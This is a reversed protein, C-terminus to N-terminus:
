GRTEIASYSQYIPLMVAVIVFGVILAMLIIMVPELLAVLRKTAMEAEYDLGDSIVDLMEDLSGTEEGVSVSATLKGEFGDVTDLARSLPEGSRVMALVEDFQSAIYANGVTSRGTRLAQVIPMGSSYLSSLTRAFRATYIKRQLKGVIPMHLKVRDVVLRVPPLRLVMGLLVCFFVFGVLLLFWHDQVFHSMGLLIVTPLPLTEMQAFLDEFQPIIFLFIFTIVLVIMVSLIIPYIMASTVQQHMRHEKEYHEAMRKAIRDINGSAEGSRVMSILLQPFADGRAEMADALAVGKRVDELVALYVKKVSPRLGQENAMINLARVLSVGASLLTGMQRCFDAVQPTRLRAGSAARAESARLLFKDEARLQRYLADRDAAEAVGRVQKGSLDRATYRYNPM